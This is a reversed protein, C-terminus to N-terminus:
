CKEGWELETTLEVFWKYFLAYIIKQCNMELWKMEWVARLGKYFLAIISCAKFDYFIGCIYGFIERIM